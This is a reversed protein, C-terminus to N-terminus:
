GNVAMDEDLGLLRGARTLDLPPDGRDHALNQMRTLLEYLARAGGRFAARALRSQDETLTSPLASAAYHAWCEDLIMVGAGVPSSDSDNEM